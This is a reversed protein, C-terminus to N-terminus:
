LNQTKYGKFWFYVLASGAVFATWGFIKRFSRTKRKLIIKKDLHDLYNRVGGMQVVARGRETIGVVAVSSDEEVEIFSHKVLLHQALEGAPSFLKFFYLLSVSSEELRALEELTYDIYDYAKELIDMNLLVLFLFGHRQRCDGPLFPFATL